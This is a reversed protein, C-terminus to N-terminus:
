VRGPDACVCGDFIAEHILCSMDERDWKWTARHPRRAGMQGVKGVKGMGREFVTLELDNNMLLWYVHVHKEQGM